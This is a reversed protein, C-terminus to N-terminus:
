LVAGVAGAFVFVFFSVVSAAKTTHSHSSTPVAPDTDGEIAPAGEPAYKGSLVPSASMNQQLSTQLATGFAAKSEPTEGSAKKEVEQLEATSLTDPVKVTYDVTVKKSATSSSLHRSLQRRSSSADELIISNITIDQRRIGM